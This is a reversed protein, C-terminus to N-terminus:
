EAALLRAAAAARAALESPSLPKPADNQRTVASGDTVKVCERRTKVWQTLRTMSAGLRSRASNLSPTMAAWKAFAALERETPPPDLVNVSDSVARELIKRALDTGVDPFARCYIGVTDSSIHNGGVSRGCEIPRAIQDRDETPRDPNLDQKQDKQDEILLPAPRNSGPLRTSKVRPPPDIRGPPPPDIQGAQPALLGRTRLRRLTARVNSADLECFRAVDGASYAGKWELSRAALLVLIERKTLYPLVRRLTTADLRLFGRESM